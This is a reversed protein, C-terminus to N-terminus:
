ADPEVLDLLELVELARRAGAGPHALRVSGGHEERDVGARLIANIASSDIFPVDELDVVLVVGEPLAALHDQLVEVNALDIDGHPRVRVTRGGDEVDIDVVLPDGV